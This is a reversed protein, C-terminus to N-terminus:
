SLGPLKVAEPRGSLAGAGQGWLSCGAPLAALPYPAEGPLGVPADVALQQHMLAAVAEDLWGAPPMHHTAGAGDLRGASGDTLPSLLTRPLALIGGCGLQAM